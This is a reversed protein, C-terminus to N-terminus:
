SFTFRASAEIRLLASLYERDLQRKVLLCGDPEWDGLVAFHVKASDLAAFADNLRGEQQKIDTVIWAGQLIQDPDAPRFKQEVSRFMLAADHAPPQVEPGGQHMEMQQLFDTTRRKVDLLVPRQGVPRVHWDITTNGAGMGVVEFDMPVDSATRRGPIMEALAIRHMAAVALRNLFAERQNGHVRQHVTQLAQLLHNVPLWINTGVVQEAGVEFPEGFEYRWLGTLNDLFCEAASLPARLLHVLEAAHAAPEGAATAESTLREPLTGKAGVAWPALTDVLVGLERNSPEHELLM